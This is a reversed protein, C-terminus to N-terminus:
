QARVIELSIDLAKVSQTLEGLSIIDVGASAFELLNEATIGGSAELLVKGFFGAKKLLAVAEKIQKPSFNDLLVIEVGLEAAKLADNPNAVEVEIRKSFSAHQKARKV